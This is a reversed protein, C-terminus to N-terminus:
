WSVCVHDLRRFLTDEVVPDIESAQHPLKLFRHLVPLPTFVNTELIPSFSLSRQLNTEGHMKRSCRISSVEDLTECFTCYAFVSSLFTSRCSTSGDGYTDM